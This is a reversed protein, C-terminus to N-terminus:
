AEFSEFERQASCCCFREEDQGQHFFRKLYSFPEILRHFAPAREDLSRAVSLSIALAFTRSGSFM